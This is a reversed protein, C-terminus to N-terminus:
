SESVRGNYRVSLSFVLVKVFKSFTYSLIKGAFQFSCLRWHGYHHREYSEPFHRGHCIPVCGRGHHCAVLVPYLGWTM